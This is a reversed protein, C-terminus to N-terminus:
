QMLSSLPLIPLAHQALPADCVHLAVAMHSLRLLRLLGLLISDLAEAGNDVRHTARVARCARCRSQLQKHSDALECTYKPVSAHSRSRTVQMGGSHGRLDVLVGMGHVLASSLQGVHEWTGM